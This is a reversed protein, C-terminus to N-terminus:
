HSPQEKSLLSTLPVTQSTSPHGFRNRLLLMICEAQLGSLSSQSYEARYNAVQEAQLSNAKQNKERARERENAGWM